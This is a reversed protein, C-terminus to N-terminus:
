RVTQLWDFRDLAKQLKSKNGVLDNYQVVTHVGNIQKFNDQIGLRVSETLVSEYAEHLPVTSDDRLYIDLQHNISNGDIDVIGVISDIFLYDEISKKLLPLRDTLEKKAEISINRNFYQSLSLKMLGKQSDTPRYVGDHQPSNMSPIFLSRDENLMYAYKEKEM